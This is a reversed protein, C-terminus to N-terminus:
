PKISFLVTTSILVGKRGTGMAPDMCNHTTSSHVTLVKEQLLFSFAPIAHLGKVQGGGVTCAMQLTISLNFLYFSYQEQRVKIWTCDQRDQSWMFTKTFGEGIMLQRSSFYKPTEKVHPLGSDERQVQPMLAMLLINSHTLSDDLIAIM